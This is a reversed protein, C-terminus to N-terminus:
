SVTDFKFATHWQYPHGKSIEWQPFSPHHIADLYGQAELTFAGRYHYYQPDPGFSQSKKRRLRLKPDTGNLSHSTHAHTNSNTHSLAHTDIRTYRSCLLVSTWVATAIFM